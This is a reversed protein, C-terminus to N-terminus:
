KPASRLGSVVFNAMVVPEPKNAYIAKLFLLDEDKMELEPSLEGNKVGLLRVKYGSYSVEFSEDTKSIAFQCVYDMEFGNDASKAKEIMEKSITLGIEEVAVGEFADLNITGTFQVVTRGQDTEFTEWKAERFFRYGGLAGGVTASSDIKLTGFKVASIPDQGCGVLLLAASFLLGISFLCSQYKM